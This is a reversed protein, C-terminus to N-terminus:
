GDGFPAPKWWWEGVYTELSERAAESFVLVRDGRTRGAGDSLQQPPLTSRSTIRGHASPPTSPARRVRVAAAGSGLQHQAQLESEARWTYPGSIHPTTQPARRPMSALVRMRERAIWPPSRKRRAHVTGGRVLRQWAFLMRMRWGKETTWDSSRPGFTLRRAMMATHEQCWRMEWKATGARVGDSVEKWARMIVRMIGRSAEWRQRRAVRPAAEDRWGDRMTSAAHVLGAFHSTMRKDCDAHAQKVQEPTMGGPM